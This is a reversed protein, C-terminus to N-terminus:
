FHFFFFFNHNKLEVDHFYISLFDKFSALMMFKMDFTKLIFFELRFADENM